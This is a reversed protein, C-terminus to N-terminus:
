LPRRKKAILDFEYRAFLLLSARFGTIREDYDVENGSSDFTSLSRTAVGAAGTLTGGVVFQDALLTQYTVSLGLLNAQQEFTSLGLTRGGDYFIEYNIKDGDALRTEFDGRLRLLEEPNAKPRLPEGDGLDREYFSYGLGLGWIYTPSSVHRFFAFLEAPMKMATSESVSVGDTVTTTTYTSARADTYNVGIEGDSDYHLVGFEPQAFTFTIPNNLGSGKITNDISSSDYRFALRWNAQPEVWVGPKLAAYTVDVNFAGVAGRQEYQIDRREASIGAGVWHPNFLLYGEFLYRTGIAQTFSSGQSSAGSTGEYFEGIGAEVGSRSYQHYQTYSTMVPSTAVDWLAKLFRVKLTPEFRLEPQEFSIVATKKLLNIKTVKGAIVFHDPHAAVNMIVDDGEEMAAMETQSLGLIIKDQDANVKEIVAANARPALPALLCLALRTFRRLM